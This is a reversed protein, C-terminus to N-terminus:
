WRYGYQLYFLEPSVKPGTQDIFSGSYLKSWGVLLDSHTGLHFAIALDIENGVDTGARGTPDQRIALGAANFLADRPADLRFHHFQAIATIWPTPFCAAQTSLDHINRRGVLDLYGFYYHGFPFLQNFTSRTDGVGPDSDGSAYDYCIWFQPTTPCDAFRYGGSATFAGALLDQNSYTGFQLMGEVDWLWNEHDGSSRSGFTNVTTGGHHGGSGVAVPSANDLFLYYFDFAIGKQPKYTSWVGAFNVNNDVNDLWDRNVIVPQVWFADVDWEDSHRYARVGQFTRRTNAWDLTSILRQSGFLLEQRGLRVYVPKGDLEGVKAEVFLNLFDSRNIDIPLPPLDQWLSDAYIFEVFLRLEDRYWLDGYLRTRILDYADNKASLQRDIDNMFRSWSQGGFSLLCDDTPHIRKLPDWFDHQQIDPKDLYRFDTDFFSPQYFAFSGWPQIPPKERFNGELCDELSYCGPGTPPILFYGPRPHPRVPPVRTWDFPKCCSDDAPLACTSCAGKGQEQTAAAAPGPENRPQAAGQATAAAAWALPVVSAYFFQAFGRADM